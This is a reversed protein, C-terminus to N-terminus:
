LGLEVTLIKEHYSADGFMVEGVKAQKSYLHMDHDWTNAIGAHIQHGLAAVRGCAKGVWIKAMSVERACSLGESLRWAAQYTMFRSTNVCTVMDAVHHQIAQFAGIPSGFQKREKAYAVSMELVQQAGGVMEACKAVSARTLVRKCPDWGQGKNGIIDDEPVFVQQLQVEFLRDGTLTPLLTRTLGRSEADILFLAIGEGTRAAVIIYRAMHADPVFMKTGDLLYGRPTRKAQVEFCTPDYMANSEAVALTLAVEGAAVAPLIEHKQRENGAEMLIGAGLVVTSFFASPLCARGMEELLVTLDLFSGGSGAYEEPLSLGFWGLSAMKNLLGVPFESKRQSIDKILQKPLEKGLFDRASKRLMEQYESLSYDM